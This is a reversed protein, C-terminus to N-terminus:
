QGGERHIARRWVGGGGGGVGVGNTINSGGGSTDQYIDRRRGDGQKNHVGGGPATAATGTQGLRGQGHESGSPGAM